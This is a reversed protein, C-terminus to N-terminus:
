MIANLDVPLIQSTRMSHLSRGDEMWRSSFDWGSEAAAAIEAWVKVRESERVSDHSATTLDELYSEPRPSANSTVYRNLTVSEGSALTVAVAHGEPGQSPVPRAAM